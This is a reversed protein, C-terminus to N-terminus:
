IQCEVIDSNSLICISYLNTIEEVKLALFCLYSVSAPNTNHTLLVSNLSMQLKWAEAVLCHCHSRLSFQTKVSLLM